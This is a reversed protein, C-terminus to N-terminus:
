YLASIVEKWFDNHRQKPESYLVLMTVHKGAQGSWVDSRQEERYTVNHKECIPILTSQHKIDYKGIEIM